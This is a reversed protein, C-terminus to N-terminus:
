CATFAPLTPSTQLRWGQVRETFVREEDPGFATVRECLPHFSSKRGSICCTLVRTLRLLHGKKEPSHSRDGELEVIHM